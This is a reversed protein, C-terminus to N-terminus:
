AGRAVIAAVSEIDPAIDFPRGVATMAGAIDKLGNGTIMAVVSANQPIMGDRRAQAIGAVATAAAPEAFLGAHQGSWRVAERIADDSVRAITGDSRKVADVAKRWNRPVPVSISDAYTQGTGSRDLAGHEFADAIPAVDQAQVGLFRPVADILGLAHMEVFGKHVGAISCGDGVSCSVWDAPDARCAAAVELGGTKKGEVLYPNIAANRNYWGLHACAATCLDYAQAYTGQVRFVRAGYALLQALKGEPVRQSVFINASLGVAAACHALSSAANGTSACAVETAGADLARMVGVASARDKFSGSASRGDDKLRLRAIGLIAALRPAEILPTGGIHLLGPHPEADIPLLERFRWCSDPREALAAPTLSQAAVALDFCVELIGEDVGCDSCTDAQGAAFRRDCQVCRLDVIQGM